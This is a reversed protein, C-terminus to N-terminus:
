NRNGQAGNSKSEANNGYFTLREDVGDSSISQRTWRLCACLRTRHRNGASLLRHRKRSGDADIEFLTTTGEYLASVGRRKRDLAKERVGLRIQLAVGVKESISDQVDFIDTFKEDFREAWLQKGDGTRFLHTSIRIRDGAIQFSGELVTEVELDRGAALSDMELLAYRRVASLSRVIMETSGSLKSILSDAIGLELAENRHELVLSKFPLIALTKIKTEPVKVEAVFRFGHGRVTEIFKVKSSQEGLVRRLISINKDLNNEEVIADVWVERLLEDKSVLHSGRRVLACLTDFAKESLSIREGECSLLRESVDLRFKDFEYLNNNERSM